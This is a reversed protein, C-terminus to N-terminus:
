GVDGNTGEGPPEVPNPEDYRVEVGDLSRVVNLLRSDGLREVHVVVVDGVRADIVIRRVHDLQCIIGADALARAFVDGLIISM